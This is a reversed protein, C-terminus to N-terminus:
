YAAEGDGYGQTQVDFLGDVFTQYMLELSYGGYEQLSSFESFDIKAILLLNNTNPGLDNYNFSCCWWQYDEPVWTLVTDYDDEDEYWSPVYYLSTQMPLEYPAVDFVTIGGDPLFWNYDPLPVNPVNPFNDIIGGSIDFAIYDLLGNIDVSDSVDSITDCDRPNFYLGVECGTGLNLYNGYWMWFRYETNNYIFPIYGARMSNFTFISFIDDYFTSYGFPRQVQDYVSHACSGLTDDYFGLSFTGILVASTRVVEVTYIACLSGWIAYETITDSEDFMIEAFNQLFSASYYDRTGGHEDSISHPVDTTQHIEIHQEWMHPLGDYELPHTDLPAITYGDVEIRTGDILGDGDADEDEPDGFQTYLNWRGTNHLNSLMDPITDENEEESLEFEEGNRYIVFESYPNGQNDYGYVWETNYQYGTLIEEGDLLGDEDLDPINPDTFVIDGNRLVMGRMEHIDWLGDEDEDLGSNLERLHEFQEVIGEEESLDIIGGYTYPLLPEIYFDTGANRNPVVFYMSVNEYSGRSCDAVRPILDGIDLGGLDVSEVNTFIINVYERNERILSAETYCVTDLRVTGNDEDYVNMQSFAPYGEDEFLYLRARQIIDESNSLYERDIYTHSNFVEFRVRDNPGLSEVFEVFAEYFADAEETTLSSAVQMQIHYDVGEFEHNERRCSYGNLEYRWRDVYRVRDILLYISFHEVEVSVENNETDIVSDLIVFSDTEENYWLVGLDEEDCDLNTEDYSFTITSNDFSGRTSIDVPAGILEDVESVYVNTELINEIELSDGIYNSTNVRVSVSSLVDDEIELTTEQIYTEESDIVGNGDSDAVNPDTELMVEEYDTLGDEDSDPNLPDTNHENVEEGDLLGDEDTDNMLPSTGVEREEGFSLGDQDQDEDIDNIGNGDSDESTPNFGLLLEIPDPITDSDSDSSNPDMEMEYELYDPIGDLDTDQEIDIDLAELNEANNCVFFYTQTLITGDLLTIMFDVRTPGYLFGIETTSFTEAVDISGQSVVIDRRDTITFELSSVQEYGQLTGSVEPVDGDIYFLCSTDTEQFYTTDLILLVEEPNIELTPTPEEVEPTSTPTPTVEPEEEPYLFEDIDLIGNENKDETLTFALGTFELEVVEPIENTGEFNIYISASPYVNRSNSNVVLTTEDEIAANGNITLGNTSNLVVNEITLLESSINTIAITGSFGTETTSYVNTTAQYKEVPIVVDEINLLYFSSEVDFLSDDESYGTIGFTVSCGPEIPQNQPASSITIYRDSAEAISANWINEVEYPFDTTIFWNDITTDGNNTITFDINAHDEWRSSVVRTVSFEYEDSVSYYPEDLALLSLPFLNLVICAILISALLTKFKSNIRSM